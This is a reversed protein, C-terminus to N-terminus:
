KTELESVRAMLAKNQASLEKVSEILLAVIKEYKVAKYGDERTAVVSPLVAEIEQAIVGVDSKRIFYGDEGGHKEIYSSTWDFTVGNIQEIKALANPIRQINEKLRRDSSYYATINNTARIEGTTGSAATGIGLSTLTTGGNSSVQIASVLTGSNTVVLNLTTSGSSSIPGVTMTGAVTDYNLVGSNTTNAAAFVGSYFQFVSSVPTGSSAASSLAISFRGKQASATNSVIEVQTYGYDCRASSANLASGYVRGIGSGATSTNRFQYIDCSTASAAQLELIGYLSGTSSGTTVGQTNILCATASSSSVANVTVGGTSGSVVFRQSGATGLYVNATGESILAGAGASDCGFKIGSTGSVAGNGLAELYASNGSTNSIQVALNSTSGNAAVTLSAGTSSAASIAVNTATVQLRLAGGTQLNIVGTTGSPSTGASITTNGGAGTTLGNGASIVLAGGAGTAATANAAAISVLGGTGTGTAAGGVLNLEGGANNTGAAAGGVVNLTNGAGTSATASITPSNGPTSTGITLTTSSTSYALDSTGTVVNGSSGYAVYTSTLTTSGGTGVAVGNVYLNVANITGAGKDGGTPSGVTIGGDGAIAMRTTLTTTGTAAAGATQFQINGPTGIGTGAVTIGGAIIINGASVAANNSIGPGGQLTVNGGTVAVNSAMSGPLISSFGGSVTVNGSSYTTGSLTSSTATGGYIVVNGPAVVPTTINATGGTVYVNGNPLYTAAAGGAPSTVNIAANSTASGGVVFVYGSSGTTANGGSVTLNGGSTGGGASLAIGGGTTYGGGGILNITGGSGSSSGGTGSIILVSGGIGTSTGGAGGEIIVTGGSGSSATANGGSVSLQIGNSASPATIVPNAAGSGLTLTQTSDTWTFDSTGTLLNSGNGYGIYTATLTGSTTSTDITYYNSSTLCALTIWGNAVVSVAANAANSDITYGSAPYVSITSGTRNIITIRRGIGTPLIVGGTGTTVANTDTTIATATGQSTGAAAVTAASSYLMGGSLTLTSLSPTSTWSPASAGGILVQSTTGAALYSTTSAASQYPLSGTTGASLSTATTANGTLAGTFGTSSVSTLGALTLSSLGLSISTTGITVSSNTLASNPIGSFNTGVFTPTAGSNINQPLSLTIAGTPVSAIIQNVTGTISSVGSGTGAFQAFAIPSTDLTTVNDIQTWGTNSYLTGSEVYVAAGNIQNVPSVQNFDSTRTLVWNTSGSGVITVTYIGNQTTTTQNKVLVRQGVVLSIGDIAFAAQTGSNTLTFNPTGSYTASLNATTTAIVPQKWSLGTATADVYAKNVADSANVPTGVGTINSNTGTLTLSTVGAFATQASGLSVSTTGITVSSNTLSSNPINATGITVAGTAGSVTIGTGAVNSTVAGSSTLLTGSTPLTVNTNGSLTFTLTGGSITLTNSGNNIGTGGYTAGIPTGQWTGSTVNGSLALTTAQLGNKVIFDKNTAM